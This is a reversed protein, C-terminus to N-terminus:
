YSTRERSKLRDISSAGKAWADICYGKCLRMLKVDEETVFSCLAKALGLRIAGAECSQGKRLELPKILEKQEEPTNKAMEGVDYDDESILTTLRGDASFGFRPEAWFSLRKSM